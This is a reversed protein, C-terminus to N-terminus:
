IARIVSGNRSGGLHLLDQIAGDTVETVASIAKPIVNLPNGKNFWRAKLANRLANTTGSIAHNRPVVSYTNRDLPTMLAPLANSFAGYGKVAIDQVAGPVTVVGPDSARDQM